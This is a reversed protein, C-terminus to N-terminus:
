AGEEPPEPETWSIVATPLTTALILVGWFVAQFENFTRPLWLRGSLAALMCYLVALLSLGTLLHFAIRYARDRVAQQREDLMRQPLNPYNLTSSLLALYSGLTIAIAVVSGALGLLALGVSNSHDLVYYVLTFAALLGAYGLYTGAVLRRRQRRDFQRLESWKPTAQKIV